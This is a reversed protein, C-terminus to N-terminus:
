VEYLKRIQKTVDDIFESSFDWTPCWQHYCDNFLKDYRKSYLVTASNHRSFAIFQVVLGQKTVKAVVRRKGKLTYEDFYYGSIREKYGVREIADVTPIQDFAHPYDQFFIKVEQFDGEKCLTYMCYDPTCGTEFDKLINSRWSRRCEAIVEMTQVIGNPTVKYKGKNSVPRAHFNTCGYCGKLSDHIHMHEDKAKATNPIVSGCKKCQVFTPMKGQVDYVRNTQVVDGSETIFRGNEYKAQATQFKNNDVYLIKM